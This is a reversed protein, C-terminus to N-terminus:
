RASRSSLAGTGCCLLGIGSLIWSLIRAPRKGKNNLLGLVVYCAAFIVFVGAM